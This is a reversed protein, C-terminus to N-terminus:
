WLVQVRARLGDIHYKKDDNDFLEAIEYGGMFTVAKSYYYNLGVYRSEIKSGNGKIEGGLPARRILEDGDVSFDSNVVSYRLVPEWKGNKQSLRISYGDTDGASGLDGEFYEGLIDFNDAKHYLYATYASVDNSKIVASKKGYDVGKIKGNSDTILSTVTNTPQNGYDIGITTNDEKYQLRAYTAIENITNSAGKLRSGEGQASNVIAWAYSLGNDLKGKAHLGM